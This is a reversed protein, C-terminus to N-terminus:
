LTPLNNSKTKGNIKVEIYTSFHGKYKEQIEPIKWDNGTIKGRCNKKECVVNFSYDKNTETTCYDYTLEEGAEIDRLAVFTIQGVVGVNPHCCHNMSWDAGPNKPDLPSLVFEESVQYAHDDYGKEEILKSWESLRMIRGGSISVIEGKSISKTTVLGKGKGDIEVVEIGERLYYEPATNQNM